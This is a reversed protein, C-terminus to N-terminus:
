QLLPTAPANRQKRLLDNSPPCCLQWASTGTSKVSQPPPPSTSFPCTATDWTNASPPSTALSPLGTLGYGTSQRPSPTRSHKADRRYRRTFSDAEIRLPRCQLLFLFHMTFHKPSSPESSSERTLGEGGKYLSRLLVLNIRDRRRSYSPCPRLCGPEFLSSQVTLQHLFPSYFACVDGFDSSHPNLHAFM